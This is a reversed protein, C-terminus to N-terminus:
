SADDDEEAGERSNEHEEGEAANVHYVVPEYLKIIRDFERRAEALNCSVERKSGDLLTFTMTFDIDAQDADLAESLVDIWLAADKLADHPTAYHPGIM